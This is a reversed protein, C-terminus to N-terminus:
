RNEGVWGCACVYMCVCVRVCACVCVHRCWVSFKLMGIHHGEITHAGLLSGDVNYSLQHLM